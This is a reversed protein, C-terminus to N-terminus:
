ELCMWRSPASGLMKRRLRLWRVATVWAHPLALLAVAEAAPMSLMLVPTLLSGLGFGSVGAIAGALVATLFIM